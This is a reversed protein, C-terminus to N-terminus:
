YVDRRREQFRIRVLDDEAYGGHYVVPTHGTASSTEGRRERACPVAAQRANEQKIM